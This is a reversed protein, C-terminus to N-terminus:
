RMMIFRSPPKQYKQFLQIQHYRKEIIKMLRGNAVLLNKTKMLLINFKKRGLQYFSSMRFKKKDKVAEHFEQRSFMFMPSRHVKYAIKEKDLRAVIEVELPKDEIEFFNITKIQNSIAFEKLSDSYTLNKKRQDLKLYHVKIGNLQLEDRYERM